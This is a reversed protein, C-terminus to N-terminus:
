FPSTFADFGIHRRDRDSLITEGDLNWNHGFSDWRIGTDATPAYETTTKYVMLSGDELSRFGHAVGPPILLASPSAADLILDAVAGYGAGRRLDLLVDHVSGVACYVMKAHDHPPLQFHMGRVVNRASVSYYEEAATFSLGHAAFASAAYTKVFSGRMDAQRQLSLHWVGPLLQKASNVESDSM